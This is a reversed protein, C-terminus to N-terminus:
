AQPDFVVKIAGDDKKQFMAYAAPADALPM